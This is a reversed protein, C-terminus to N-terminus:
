DGSESGSFELARCGKPGVLVVVRDLPGPSTRRAGGPGDEAPATM